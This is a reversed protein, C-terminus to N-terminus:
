IRAPPKTKPPAGLWGRVGDSLGTWTCSLRTQCQRTAVRTAHNPRIHRPTVAPRPAPLSGTPAIRSPPAHPSAAETQQRQKDALAAVIAAHRRRELYGTYEQDIKKLEEQTPNPGAIDFHRDQMFDYYTYGGGPKRRGAFKGDCEAIQAARAEKTADSKEAQAACDEYDQPAFLPWWQAQAATSTLLFSAMILIRTRM